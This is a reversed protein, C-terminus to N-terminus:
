GVKSLLCILRMLARACLLWMLSVLTLASQLVRCYPLISDLAITHYNHDQPLFDNDEDM